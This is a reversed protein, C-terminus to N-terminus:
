EPNCVKCPSYGAERAEWADSFYVRNEEKIKEAYRCDLRHYKDSTTSAVYRVEKDGYDTEVEDETAVGEETAVEVETELDLDDGSSSDSRQDEEESELGESPNAVERDRETSRSSSSTSAVKASGSFSLSGASSSLSGASPSLSGASPSISSDSAKVSEVEGGRTSGIDEWVVAGPDDEVVLCGRRESPFLEEPEEVELLSSYGRDPSLRCRECIDFDRGEGPAVEMM